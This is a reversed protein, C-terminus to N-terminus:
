RRVFVLLVDLTKNWGDLIQRDADAAEKVYEDWVSEEQGPIDLPADM